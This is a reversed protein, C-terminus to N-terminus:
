AIPELTILRNDTDREEVDNIRYIASEYVVAWGVAVNRPPLRLLLRLSRTAFEAAVYDVESASRTWVRAACKQVDTFTVTKHGLGNAASETPKRLIVTKPFEGAAM